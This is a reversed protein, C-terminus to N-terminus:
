AGKFASYLTQTSDSSATSLLSSFLKSRAQNMTNKIQTQASSRIAQIDKIGTNYTDNIVAQPTGELELGAQAYGVQQTAALKRIEQKRTEMQQEAQTKISKASSKSNQYDGYASILQSGTQAGAILLATEAGM